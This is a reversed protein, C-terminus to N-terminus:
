THSCTNIPSQTLSQKHWDVAVRWKLTNKKDKKRLGLCSGANSFICDQKYGNYCKIIYKEIM